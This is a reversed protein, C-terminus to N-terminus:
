RLMPYVQVVVRDRYVGARKNRADPISFKLPVRDGFDGIPNEFIVEADGGSLDLYKGGVWLDYKLQSNVITGERVLMGDNDSRFRLQYPDTSQVILLPQFLPETGSRIAGFDVVRDRGQVGAFSVRAGSEVLVETVFSLEDDPVVQQHISVTEGVIAALVGSYTGSPVMQGSPFSIAYEWRHRQGPMLNAVEKYVHLEGVHDVFRTVFDYSLQYGANTLKQSEISRLRIHAICAPALNGNSNNGRDIREIDIYGAHVQTNGRFVSYADSSYAGHSVFRFECSFAPDVAILWVMTLAVVVIRRFCFALSTNWDFLYTPRNKIESFRLDRYM